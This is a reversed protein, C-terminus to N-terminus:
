RGALALQQRGGAQRHLSVNSGANAGLQSAIGYGAGVQRSKIKKQAVVIATYEKHEHPERQKKLEDLRERVKVAFAKEFNARFGARSFNQGLLQALVAEGAMVTECQKKMCDMIFQYYLTTQIQQAETGICKFTTVARGQSRDRNVYGKADYFRAVACFIVFDAESMRKTSHYAETLVEPETAEDITVGYKQCLEDIKAAAAAAEGEFNSGEKLAIMAAIKDLIAKRNM